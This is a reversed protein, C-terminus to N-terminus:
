IYSQKIQKKKNNNNNKNSLQEVYKFNALDMHKAIKADMKRRYRKTRSIENTWVDMLNRVQKKINGYRTGKAYPGYIHHLISFVVLTMTSTQSSRDDVGKQIDSIFNNDIFTSVNSIAEKPSSLFLAGILEWGVYKHQSNRTNHVLNRWSEVM